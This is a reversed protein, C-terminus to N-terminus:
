DIINISTFKDSKGSIVLELNEIVFNKIKDDHYPLVPTCEYVIKKSADLVVVEYNTWYVEHYLGVLAIFYMSKSYIKLNKLRFERSIPEIYNGTDFISEPQHHFM